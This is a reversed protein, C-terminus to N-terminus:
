ICQLKDVCAEFRQLVRQTFFARPHSKHDEVVIKFTLSYLKMSHYARSALCRLLAAIAASDRNQVQISLYKLNPCIPPTGPQVFLATALEGLADREIELCTLSSFSRLIQAWETPGIHDLRGDGRRLVCLCKPELTALGVMSNMFLTRFADGDAMTETASTQALYPVIDVKLHSDGDADSDYECSSRRDDPSHSDDEDDEDDGSGQEPYSQGCPCDLRCVSHTEMSADWGINWDTLSVKLCPLKLAILHGGDVRQLAASVAALALRPIDSAREEAAGGYFFLLRMRTEELFKIQALMAAIRAAYDLLHVKQAYTFINAPKAVIGNWIDETVVPLVHRLSLDNVYECSNELFELFEDMTPLPGNLYDWVKLVALTDLLNPDWEWPYYVRTLELASLQPYLDLSPEFKPEDFQDEESGCLVLGKLNPMKFTLRPHLTTAAPTPVMLGEVREAYEELIDALADALIPQFTEDATVIHVLRTGSREFSARLLAIHGPRDACIHVDTWLSSCSLAVARWFHCVHTVRLWKTSPRTWNESSSKIDLFIEILLEAPVRSAM